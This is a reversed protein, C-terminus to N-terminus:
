TLGCTRAFAIACMTTFAQFGAGANADAPSPRSGTIRLPQIGLLHRVYQRFFIQRDSFYPKRGILLRASNRACNEAYNLGDFLLFRFLYYAWKAQPHRAGLRRLRDRLFSRELREGPKSSRM